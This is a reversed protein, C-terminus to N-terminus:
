FEILTKTPTNPNSVLIKCIELKESKALQTLTEPSSNANPAVLCALSDNINVLEALKEPSTNNNIAEKQLTLSLKNM